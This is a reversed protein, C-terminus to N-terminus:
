LIASTFQNLRSWITKEECPDLAPSKMVEWHNWAGQYGFYTYDVELEVTHRDGGVPDKGFPSDSM